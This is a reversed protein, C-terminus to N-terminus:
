FTGEYVFRYKEIVRKSSENFPYHYVSLIDLKMDEFACNIL